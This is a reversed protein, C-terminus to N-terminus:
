GWCTYTNPSVGLRLAWRATSEDRAVIAELLTGENPWFIITASCLHSLATLAFGPWLSCPFRGILLATTAMLFSFVIGPLGVLIVLGGFGALGEFSTRRGWFMLINELFAVLVAGVMLRTAWPGGSREQGADTSSDM